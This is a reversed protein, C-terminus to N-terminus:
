PDADTFPLSFLPISHFFDFELVPEVFDLGDQYHVRFCINKM